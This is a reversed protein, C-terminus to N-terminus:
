DLCLLSTPTAGPNEVPETPREEQFPGPRTSETLPGLQTYTGSASMCLPVQSSREALPPGLPSSSIGQNDVVIPISSSVSPRHDGIMAGERTPDASAMSVTAVNPPSVSTLLPVYTKIARVPSIHRENGSFTEQQRDQSPANGTHVEESLPRHEYDFYRRGDLM